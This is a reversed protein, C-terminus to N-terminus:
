RALSDRGCPCPWPQVEVLRARRTLDGRAIPYTIPTRHNWHAPFQDLDYVGEGRFRYVALQRPDVRELRIHWLRDTDDEIVEVAHTEDISTLLEVAPTQYLHRHVIM